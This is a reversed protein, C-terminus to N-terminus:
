RVNKKSGYRVAEIARKRENEGQWYNNSVQNFEWPRFKGPYANEIIWMFDKWGQVYAAPRLRHNWLTAAKVKRPIEKVSIGLYDEILYRTLFALYKKGQEGVFFHDPFKGRKGDLVDRYIQLVKEREVM